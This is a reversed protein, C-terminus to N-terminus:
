GIYADVLDSCPPIVKSTGSERDVGTCAPVASARKADWCCEDCLLSMSEMVTLPRRDIATTMVVDDSQGPRPRYEVAEVVAQRLARGVGELLVGVM